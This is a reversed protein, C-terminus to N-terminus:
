EQSVDSRVTLRSRACVAQGIALGGDNPPIDKHSLVSFGSEDLMAKTRETLLRNQFCGGTLGVTRIGTGAAIKDVTTAIMKAITNHFRAGAVSASVGCLMDNALDTILPRPDIVWPADSSLDVTYSGGEDRDSVSELWMAAEGEFTVRRRFGVAAAAADFLRGVSSTMPSNIGKKAAELWLRVKLDAEGPPQGEQTLLSMFKAPTAWDEALLGALLRTPEKIAAEGGPIPFRGLRGAREFNRWDAVLFEGGWIAADTGYGTGDFVVCIAPGEIGHEFLVSVAHAHHHFVEEVELGLERALRNSFYEPHPDLAVLGPSAELYESLVLVSQKFYDQGVPSALDGVHPGPIITSGKAIAPANKLDGGAALIVPQTAAGIERSDGATEAQTSQSSSSRAAAEPLVFEGPVIGRSRRFVTPVGAIVRYVSDDARLVIERNHALFADAIEGLREIAERNGRAIPEESRNGSTMVLVLPRNKEMVGPHRFLLHHLPTYPLMVGLTGVFPAVNSAVTEGATDLLVIPAIPSTLLKREEDSVHCFREVTKMDPAMVAFPKEERGKRQRLERVAEEKLADCALHFGGLGKIALIAGQSLLRVAEPIPDGNLPAGSRDLLTLRPGCEPCSNTQSHFRRDEPTEYEHRCRACMTFDSMSTRERDYPFARVVTFRPGCLTCTTFPFLYRPDAPDFLEGVCEPCVAVDPPIPTVTRDGELSDKILFSSEGQPPIDEIFESDIRGPHPLESHLKDLFERCSSELGEIELIVGSTTNVVWGALEFRSALRYITPRCGIGQLIGTLTIHRRVVDRTAPFPLNESLGM